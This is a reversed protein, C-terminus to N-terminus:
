LGKFEPKDVVIDLVAMYGALDDCDEFAKAVLEETWPASESDAAGLRSKRHYETVWEKTTIFPNKPKQNNSGNATSKSSNQKSSRTLKNMLKM